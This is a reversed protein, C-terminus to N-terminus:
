LSCKKGVLDKGDVHIGLQDIPVFNFKTEPIYVREVSAVEVVLNENITM